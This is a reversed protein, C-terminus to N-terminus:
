VWYATALSALSISNGHLSNKIDLLRDGDLNPKELEKIYDEMNKEISIIIDLATERTEVYKAPPRMMDVSGRAEKILALSNKASTAAQNASYDGRAVLVAHSMVANLQNEIGQIEKKLFLMYQLPDYSFEASYHGNNQPATCGSLVLMLIMFLFLTKKM